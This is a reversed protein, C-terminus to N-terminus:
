SSILIIKRNTVMCAHARVCICMAHNIGFLRWSWACTVNLLPFQHLVFLARFRTRTSWHGQVWRPPPALIWRSLYCSSDRSEPLFAKLNTLSASIATICFSPSKTSMFRSYTNCCSRCCVCWPVCVYGSCGFAHWWLVLYLISAVEFNPVYCERLITLFSRFMNSYRRIKFLTIHKLTNITFLYKLFM